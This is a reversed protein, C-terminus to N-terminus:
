FRQVGLVRGSGGGRLGLNWRLQWRLVRRSECMYQVIASIVATIAPFNKLTTVEAKLGDM